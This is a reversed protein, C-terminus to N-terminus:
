RCFRMLVPNRVAFADSSTPSAVEVLNSHGLQSPTLELTKDEKLRKALVRVEKLMADLNPASEDAPREAARKKSAASM